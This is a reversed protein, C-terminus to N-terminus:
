EAKQRLDYTKQMTVVLNTLVRNVPTPIAAKEGERVVIGNIMEIETKRRNLVDQLMSSRNQATLRCVEKTHAVPDDYQLKIGRSQAVRVAEEVAQELIEEAEPYKVIDGNKLGTIATLANIGVNIILKSWILSLIDTEVRCKIGARNFVEAIRNLRKTIRGDIEGLYTDGQGAHRIHGPGLLTSGHSTVGPIVRGKGVVKEIKEINGLGNQLTIITTNDGVISKVSELAVETVTSKVFVILLEVPDVQSPDTTAKVDKVIKVGKTEEIKLGKTNITDVHEKWIDILTVPNGAEALLGGFLSGMAGAGLVAVKM